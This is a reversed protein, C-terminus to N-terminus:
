RTFFIDYTNAARDFIIKDIITRLAQNKALEDVDPSTLVKLVDAVKEAYAEPEFAPATQAEAEQSQRYRAVAADAAAKAASYEAATFVGDLYAERARDLRSLELKILKDWDFAPEKRPAALEFKFVKDRIASALYRRRLPM